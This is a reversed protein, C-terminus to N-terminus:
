RARNRRRREARIREDLLELSASLDALENSLFDALLRDVEGVDQEMAAVLVVTEAFEAM